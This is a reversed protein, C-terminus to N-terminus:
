GNLAAPPASCRSWPLLLTNGCAPSAPQRCWPRALRKLGKLIEESGPPEPTGLVDHGELGPWLKKRLLIGGGRVRAGRGFSEQEHHRGLRGKRLIRAAHLLQLLGLPQADATGHGQAHEARGGVPLAAEIIQNGFATRIHLAEIGEGERGRGRGRGRGRHDGRLRPLRRLPAAQDAIGHHGVEFGAAVPETDIRDGTGPSRRHRGAVVGVAM